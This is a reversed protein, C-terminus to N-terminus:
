ETTKPFDQDMEGGFSVMELYFGCFLQLTVIISWPVSSRSKDASVPAATTM